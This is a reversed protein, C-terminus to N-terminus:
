FIISYKNNVAILIIFMFVSVNSNCYSLQVTFYFIILVLIIFEQNELLQIKKLGKTNLEKLNNKTTQCQFCWIILHVFKM